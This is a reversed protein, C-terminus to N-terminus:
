GERGELGAATRGKLYNRVWPSRSTWLRPWRTAEKVRRKETVDDKAKAVQFLGTESTGENLGSQAQTGM